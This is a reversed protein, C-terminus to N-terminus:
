AERKKVGERDKDGGGWSTIELWLSLHWDADAAATAALTMAVVVACHGSGM